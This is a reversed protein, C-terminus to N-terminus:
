FLKQFTSPFKKKFDEPIQSALTKDNPMVEVIKYTQNEPIWVFLGIDASLVWLRSTKPDWYMIWSNFLGIDDHSEIYNQNSFKDSVSYALFDNRESVKICLSSNRLCYNGYRSILGGGWDKHEEKIRCSIFISILCIITIVISRKM